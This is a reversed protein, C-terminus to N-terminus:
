WGLVKDLMEDEVTKNDDKLEIDPSIWVKEISKNTKGTYWLAVTYKVSWGNPLGMVTQASWKGYSKEWVIKATPFYDKLTGVLIESASASGANMLLYIQKGSFLTSTWQSYLTQKDSKQQMAIVPEWKPVFYSLIWAAEEVYWGPNNRVDIIIKDSTIIDNKYTDVWSGFLYTIGQGFSNLTFVISRWKKETKMLPIVIKKRKVDVTFISVWRQIKLSAITDAPWKIRAVVDNVSFVEPVNRWNVSLVIDWPQLWALAAPEGPIASWVIFKGDRVDVYMWVGYYTWQVTNYFDASQEPPFYVSYQDHLSDVLGKIAGYILNSDSTDGSIYHYNQQIQSYVNAFTSFYTSNIINSEYAGNSWYASLNLLRQIGYYTPVTYRIKEEWVDSLVAEDPQLQATVDMHLKQWFFDYVFNWKVSVQFDNIKGKTEIIGLYACKQLASYLPSEKTVNPWSINIDKYVNPMWQWLRGCVDLFFKWLSIPRPKAVLKKRAPKVSIIPSDIKIIVQSWTIVFYKKYINSM